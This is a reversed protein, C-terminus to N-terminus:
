CYYEVVSYLICCAICGYRPLNEAEVSLNVPTMLANFSADYITCEFVINIKITKLAKFISFSSEQPECVAFAVDETGTVNAHFFSFADNKYQTSVSNCM